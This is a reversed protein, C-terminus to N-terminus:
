TSAPLRWTPTSPARSRATSTRGAATGATSRTTSPASSTSSRRGSTPSGATTTRATPCRRTSRCGTSRSTSRPRRERSGSGASRTSSTRRPARAPRRARPVNAAPRAGLGRGPGHVGDRGRARRGHGPRGLHHGRGGAGRPPDRGRLVARGERPGAHLRRQRGQPVGMRRVRRRARRAPPVPARAGLGALVSRGEHRHDVVLGHLGQHHRVRLLRRPLGRASGTLLRVTNHLVDKPLAKFRAGLGALAMLEEPDDSFLNPPPADLLPKIAQLVKNVDHNFRDYADADHKCHRAIERQNVGHDQGLLLYDGNEMPAFTSSMLLPLFGHKVLDLEQIIDPRLLSLAYRSRPSGSARTCSRPSRPAASSTAASSSSPGSGPSRSTPATSSATTAAASSSPTTLRARDTTMTLGDKARPQLPATRATQAAVHIYRHSVPIELFVPSGPQASEVPVRAIGIHRQLVPSYMFSTAYGVQAGDDDYLFMEEQVPTHDKPPILGAEDHIRDWDRWDVVIGRRGSARRAQRRARAPDRRPRHVRPRRDRRGQADLGPRARPAHGPGRRDLRVPQQAFDVDLLLLGAEIRTMYLAQLGFPLM